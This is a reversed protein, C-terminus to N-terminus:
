VGGHCKKLIWKLIMMEVGVKKLHDVCDPKGVLCILGECKQLGKFVTHGAWRVNKM